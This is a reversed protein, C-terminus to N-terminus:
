TARFRAFATYKGTPLDLIWRLYRRRKGRRPRLVLNVDKTRRFVTAGTGDRIIFRFRGDYRVARDRKLRLAIRAKLRRGEVAGEREVVYSFFDVRDGSKWLVSSVVAGMRGKVANYTFALTNDSRDRRIRIPAAAAPEVTWLCLVAVLLAIRINKRPTM